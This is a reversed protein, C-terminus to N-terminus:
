SCARQPATAAPHSISPSSAVVDRSNSYRCRFLRHSISIALSSMPLSTMVRLKSKWHKNVNWNNRSKASQHFDSMESLLSGCPLQLLIEFELSVTALERDKEREAGSRGPSSTRLNPKLDSANVCQQCHQNVTYVSVVMQGTTCTLVECYINILSTSITLCIISLVRWVNYVVIYLINWSM